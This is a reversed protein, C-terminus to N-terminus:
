QSRVMEATVYEYTNEVARVYRQTDAKCSSEEGTYHTKPQADNRAIGDATRIRVNHYDHVEKGGERADKESKRDYTHEAAAGDVHCDGDCDPSNGLKGSNYATGCQSRLFELIHIGDPREARFVPLDDELM